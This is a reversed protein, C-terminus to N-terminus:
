LIKQVVLDEQYEQVQPCGLLLLFHLGELVGLVELVFPSCPVM